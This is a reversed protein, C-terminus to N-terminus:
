GPIQDQGPIGPPNQVSECLGSIPGGTQPDKEPPSLQLRRLEGRSATEIEKEWFM